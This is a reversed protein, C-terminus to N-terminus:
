GSCWREIWANKIEIKYINGGPRDQAVLIINSLSWSPISAYCQEQLGTNTPDLKGSPKFCVSVIVTFQVEHHRCIVFELVFKILFGKWRWKEIREVVQGSKEVAVEGKWNTMQAGTSEARVALSRKRSGRKELIREDFLMLATLMSASWSSSNSVAWQIFYLTTRMTEMAWPGLRTAQESRSDESGKWRTGAMQDAKQEVNLGLEGGHREQWRSKGKISMTKRKKRHDPWKLKKPIQELSM